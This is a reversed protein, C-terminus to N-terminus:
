WVERWAVKDQNFANRGALFLERATVEYIRTQHDRLFLKQLAHGLRAVEADVQAAVHVDIQPDVTSFFGGFSPSLPVGM